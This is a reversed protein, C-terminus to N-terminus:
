ARVGRPEQWFRAPIVLKGTPITISIAFGKAVNGCTATENNGCATAEDNGCATAEDNGCAKPPFGTDNEASRIGHNRAN